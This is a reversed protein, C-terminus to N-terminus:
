KQDAGDLNAAGRIDTPTAGFRSRFARNFHSLDAFGAEGAVDAIKRSRWAPDRLLAAARQLRRERLHHTFSRGTEELLLHVYRPTIGLLVAVATANLTPDASRRDIEHLIASRRAVSFARQAALEGVEGEVGLALAILDLIHQECLESAPAIESGDTKFLARLYSFLFRLAAPDKDLKVGGLNGARPLWGSLKHRPIKINWSRAETVYNYEGTFACDCIIADGSVLRQGEGRAEHYASGSELLMVCLADDGDGILKRTRENNMAANFAHGLRTTGIQQAQLSAHFRLQDPARLELGTFRRVIEEYFAPFRDRALLSDTSFYFRNPSTVQRQLEDDGSHQPM